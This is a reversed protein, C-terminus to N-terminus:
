RRSSRRSSTSTAPTATASRAGASRRTTGSRCTASCPATGSSRASTSSSRPSAALGLGRAPPRRPQAQLGRRARGHRARRALAVGRRRRRAQGGQGAARRRHPGRRRRRHRRRRGQSMAEGRARDAAGAARALRPEAGLSSTSPSPLRLGPLREVIRPGALAADRDTGAAGRHLRPHGQRVRRAPQTRAHHRFRTPTRSSRPDRNAASNVIVCSRGGQDPPRPDRPRRPVLPAAAQDGGRACRRRSASGALARSRGCCRSQDPNRLLTSRPPSRRTTTEHGAFLMLACM